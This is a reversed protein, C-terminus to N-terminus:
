PFRWEYADHSSVCPTKILAATKHMSFTLPSKNNNQYGM